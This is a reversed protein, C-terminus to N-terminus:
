SLLHKRIKEISVRRDAWFVPLKGRWVRWCWAISEIWRMNSTRSNHCRFGRSRLLTHGVRRCIGENRAFTGCRWSNGLAAKLLHISFWNMLYEPKQRPRSIEGSSWIAWPTSYKHRPWIPCVSIAAFRRFLSTHPSRTGSSCNHQFIPLPSKMIKAGPSGRILRNAAGPQRDHRCPM